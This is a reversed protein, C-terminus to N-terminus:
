ENTQIRSGILCKRGSANMHRLWELHSAFTAQVLRDESNIDTYAM